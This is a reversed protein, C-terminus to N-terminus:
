SSRAPKASDVASCNRVCAVSTSVSIPTIDRKLHTNVQRALVKEPVDGPVKGDPPYLAKLAAEAPASQRRRKKARTTPAQAMGPLPWFALLQDRRVFLHHGFRSFMRVRVGRIPDFGAPVRFAALGHADGWYGIRNSPVVTSFFGPPLVVDQIGESTVHRDIINLDGSAHRSLVEVEVLAWAGLLKHIHEGAARL